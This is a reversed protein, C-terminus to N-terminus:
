WNRSKQHDFPNSGWLPDEGPFDLPAQPGDYQWQDPPPAAAGMAFVWGTVTQRWAYWKTGDSSVRMEIDATHPLARSAYVPGLVELLDPRYRGGRNRYWGMQANALLRLVEKTEDFERRDLRRADEDEGDVGTYIDLRARTEAEARGVETHVRRFSQVVRWGDRLTSTSALRRPWGGVFAGVERSKMHLSALLVAKARVRSWRGATPTMDMRLFALEYAAWLGLLYIFPL